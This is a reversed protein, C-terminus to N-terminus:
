GANSPRVIGRTTAPGAAQLAATNAELLVRATRHVLDDSVSLWRPDKGNTVEEGFLARSLDRVVCANAYSHPANPNLSASDAFGRVLSRLSTKAYVLETLKARYELDIQELKPFIAYDAFHRGEHQLYSVKFKESELDYDDRLCYLREKTAWGGTYAKGFTAFHSWGYVIFDALFVVEVRQKADTLEVEYERTEQFTWLMLDYYPLTVGGLVHVGERELEERLRELVVDDPLPGAVGQAALAERIGHKLEAEGQAADLDGMLVKTWYKRYVGVVDQVFTSANLPPFVEDRREFRAAFREQLKVDQETMAASDAADFLARAPRLDGQLAMSVYQPGVEGAPPPAALCPAATITFAIAAALQEAIAATNRRGTSRATM